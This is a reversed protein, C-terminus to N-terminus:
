NYLKNDFFQMHGISELFLCCLLLFDCKQVIKEELHVNFLMTNWLKNEKEM